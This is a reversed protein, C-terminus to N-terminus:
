LGISRILKELNHARLLRSLGKILISSHLNAKLRFAQMKSKERSIRRLRPNNKINGTIIEMSKINITVVKEKVEETNRRGAKKNRSIDKKSRM